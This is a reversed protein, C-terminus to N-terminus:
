VVVQKGSIQVLYALAEAVSHLVIDAAELVFAHQHPGSEPLVVVTHKGLLSAWALEFCTGISVRTAASLDAFVIDVSQVMWCDREVIAHNTSVPNEYGHARFEVENRLESKGLMPHLVEYGAAELPVIKAEFLAVTEEYGNGSIPGALYIRM